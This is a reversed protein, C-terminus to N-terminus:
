QAGTNFQTYDNGINWPQVVGCGDESFSVNAAGASDLYCNSNVPLVSDDLTDNAYLFM